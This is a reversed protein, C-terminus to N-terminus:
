FGDMAALVIKKVDSQIQFALFISFYGHNDRIYQTLSLKNSFRQCILNAKNAVVTIKSCTMWSAVPKPYNWYFLLLNRGLSHKVVRQLSISIQQYTTLIHNLMLDSTSILQPYDTNLSFNFKFLTKTPDPTHQPTVMRQM